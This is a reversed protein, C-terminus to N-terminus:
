PFTLNRLVDASHATVQFLQCPVTSGGGGVGERQFTKSCLGYVANETSVFAPSSACSLSGRPSASGLSTKVSAQLEAELFRICAQQALACVRVCVYMCLSVCAGVCMSEYHESM